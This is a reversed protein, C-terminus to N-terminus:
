RLVCSDGVVMTGLECGGFLSGNPIGMRIVEGRVLHELARPGRPMGWENRPDLGLPGTGSDISSRSTCPVGLESMVQYLCKSAGEFRCNSCCGRWHGPLSVCEDFPYPLPRLRGDSAEIAVRLHRESCRRCAIPNRVGYFAVLLSKTRKIPRSLILRMVRGYPEGASAPVFVRNRPQFAQQPASYRNGNRASVYDLADRVADNNQTLSLFFDRPTRANGGRTVRSVADLDLTWEM